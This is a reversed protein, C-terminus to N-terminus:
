GISLKSFVEFASCVIVRHHLEGFLVYAARLGNGLSNKVDIFWKFSSLVTYPVIYTM